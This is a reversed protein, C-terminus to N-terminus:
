KKHQNSQIQGYFLGQDEIEELIDKIPGFNSGSYQPPVYQFHESCFQWNADYKHFRLFLFRNKVNIQNYKVMFRDKIKSKKDM